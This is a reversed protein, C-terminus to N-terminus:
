SFDGEARTNKKAKKLKEIEEKQENVRSTLAEVLDNLQRIKADYSIVQSLMDFTKQQYTALLYKYDQDNM